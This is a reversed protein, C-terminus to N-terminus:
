KTILVCDSSHVLYYKGNVKVQLQDGEYDSWKEVTGDVIDGNPLEIIVREYALVTDVVDYNCGVMSLVLLLVIFIVLFKKM